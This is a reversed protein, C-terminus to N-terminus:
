TQGREAQLMKIELELERVREAYRMREAQNNTRNMKENLELIEKSKKIIRSDLAGSEVYVDHGRQLGWRIIGFVFVAVFAGVALFSGLSILYNSFWLFTEPAGFMFVLPFILALFVNIKKNFVKMTSLVGWFIAFLIIFPVFYTIAYESYPPPLIDSITIPM